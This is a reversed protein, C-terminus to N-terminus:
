REVEQSPCSGPAGMDEPFPHLGWRHVPCTPTGEGMSSRGLKTRQPCPRAPPDQGVPSHRPLISRCHPVWGQANLPTAYESRLHDEQAKHGQALWEGQELRGKGSPFVSQEQSLIGLSLWHSRHCQYSALLPRPGPPGPPGPSGAPGRSDQITALAGSKGSGGEAGEESLGQTAPDQHSSSLPVTVISIIINAAITVARGTHGPSPM